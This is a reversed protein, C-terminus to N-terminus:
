GLPVAGDAGSAGYEGAKGDDAGILALMTTVQGAGTQVSDVTSIQGAVAEDGRLEKLLGDEGSATSGAVVLGRSRLDLGALLGSMLVDTDAEVEDDGLVLVVLPARGKPTGMPKMLDAGAMSETVATATEDVDQTSAQLTGVARGILQGM